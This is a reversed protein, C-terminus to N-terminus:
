NSFNDITNRLQAGRVERKRWVFPHATENWASIYAEIRMRLSEKSAFSGGDLAKRSLIGFWIEVQNMWSASTPTYHFVVDPHEELWAEHRKHIAHNDLIVHYTRGTPLGELLEDMFALFGKKTKECDDTVKGKLVGTAIELAAFLNLTGHRKYTSQLGRVLEGDSAYVYGVRRENAQITPKEDVAIVFGNEPPSLYLGVIDAAKEAFEPDTSVCWSRKRALGIGENRLIKWVAYPSVGLERGLLKGDWRVMGSPPEQGLLRLVERRLEEGHIAPRGSRSLDGLGGIGEERFRERWRIVTYPCVGLEKALVTVEKGELCGLIIRARQVMRAEEVRGRSIRELERRTAEDSEMKRVPRSMETM